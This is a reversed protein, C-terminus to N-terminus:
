KTAIVAPFICKSDQEIQINTFGAEQFDNKAEALTRFNFWQINLNLANHFSHERNQIDEM